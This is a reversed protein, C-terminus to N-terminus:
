QARELARIRICKENLDARVVTLLVVWEALRDKPSSPAPDHDLRHRVHELPELPVIPTIGIADHQLVNRNPVTVAVKREIVECTDIIVLLFPKGLPVVADARELTLM